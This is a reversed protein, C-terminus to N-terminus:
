QMATQVTFLSALSSNLLKKFVLSLWNESVDAFWGLAAHLMM